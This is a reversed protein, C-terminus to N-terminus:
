FFRQRTKNFACIDSAIAPLLPPIVQIVPFPVFRAPSPHPPPAFRSYQCLIFLPIIFKFLSHRCRLSTSPNLLKVMRTHAHTNTCPLPPRNVGSHKCLCSGVARATHIHMRTNTLSRDAWSLHGGVGGGGIPSIEPRGVQFIDYKFFIYIGNEKCITFGSRQPCKLHYCLHFSM